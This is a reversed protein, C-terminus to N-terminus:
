LIRVIEKSESGNHFAHHLPTSNKGRERTGDVNAGHALLKAVSYKRGACNMSTANYLATWGGTNAVNVDAGYDLLIEISEHYDYRTAYFLPTENKDDTVVNIEAGREILEKM